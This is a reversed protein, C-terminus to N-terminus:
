FAAARGNHKRDLIAPWSPISGGARLNLTEREEVSSIAEFRSRSRISRGLGTGYSECLRLGPMPLRVRPPRPRAVQGGSKLSTYAVPSSGAYRWMRLTASM